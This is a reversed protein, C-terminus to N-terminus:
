RGQLVKVSGTYTKGLQSIISTTAKYHSLFLYIAILIGTGSLIMAVKGSM